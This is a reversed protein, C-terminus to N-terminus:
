LEREEIPITNDWLNFFRTSVENANRFLDIRLRIIRRNVIEGTVEVRSLLRDEVLWQLAEQAYSIAKNLVNQTLRSQSLIWLKSGIEFGAVEAVENGWWGRRLETRLVESSDARRECYVSMQLSTDFNNVLELEENVIEIDYKNGLEPKRALKIDIGKQRPM